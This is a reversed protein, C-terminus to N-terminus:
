SLYDAFMEEGVSEEVEPRMVGIDFWESMPLGFNCAEDWYAQEDM